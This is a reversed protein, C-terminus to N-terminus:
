KGSSLEVIEDMCEDAVTNAEATDTETRDLRKRLERLASADLKRDPGFEIVSPIADHYQHLNEFDIPLYM